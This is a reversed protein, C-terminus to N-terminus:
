RGRWVPTPLEWKSFRIPNAADPTPSMRGGLNDDGDRQM